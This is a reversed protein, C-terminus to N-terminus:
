EANANAILELLEAKTVKKAYEIGLSDAQEKLEKLTPENDAKKDEVLEYRDTYKKYQEILMKNTVIEVNGTILNKFKM